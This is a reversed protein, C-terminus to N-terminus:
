RSREFKALAEHAPMEYIKGDRTAYIMKENKGAKNELMKREAAELGKILRTRYSIREKETM